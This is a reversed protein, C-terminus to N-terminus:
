IISSSDAEVIRDLLQEIMKDLKVIEAEM